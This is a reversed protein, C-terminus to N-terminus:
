NFGYKRDICGYHFGFRVAVFCFWPFTAVVLMLRHKLPLFARIAKRNYEKYQSNDMNWGWIRRYEKYSLRQAMQLINYLISKLYRAKYLSEVEQFAGKAVLYDKVKELAIVMHKCLREYSARSTSGAREIAHYLVENVFSVKNACCSIEIAFLTDENVIGEKFNLNNHALFDRYYMKIVPAVFINKVLMADPLIDGKYLVAQEFPKGYITQKGTNPNDFQFRCQAFDSGEQVINRYLVELMNPEIWDDSDVFVIYDGEAMLLGKNRASSVGQNEQYVYKVVNNNLLKQCIEASNDSSGDNVLIIEYQRLGIAHINKVCEKLYIGCNYVPIIFSFKKM